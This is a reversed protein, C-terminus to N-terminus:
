IVGYVEKKYIKDYYLNKLLKGCTWMTNKDLKNKLLV